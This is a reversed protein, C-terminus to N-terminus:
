VGGGGNLLAKIDPWVGCDEGEGEAGVAGKDVGRSKGAPNSSNRPTIQPSLLEM